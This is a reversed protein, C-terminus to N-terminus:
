LHNALTLREVYGPVLYKYFYDEVTLLMKKYTPKNNEKTDHIKVYHRCENTVSWDYIQKAHKRFQKKALNQNMMLKVAQLDMAAVERHKPWARVVEYSENRLWISFIYEAKGNSDTWCPPVGKGGKQIIERSLNKIQGSLNNKDQKLNFIKSDAEQLSQFIDDLADRPSISDDGLVSALLELRKFDDDMKQKQKAIINELNAVKAASKEKEVDSKEKAVLSLMLVIFFLLIVIETLTLGFLFREREGADM